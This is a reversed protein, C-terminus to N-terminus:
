IYYRQQDQVNNKCSQWLSIEQASKLLLSDLGNESDTHRSKYRHSDAKDMAIGIAKLAPPVEIEDDNEILHVDILCLLFLFSFTARSCLIYIHPIDEM